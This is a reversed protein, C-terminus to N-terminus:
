FKGIICWRKPSSETEEFVKTERIFVYDRHSLPWPYAVRWYIKKETGDDSISYLDSPNIIRIDNKM